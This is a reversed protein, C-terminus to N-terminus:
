PQFRSRPRLGSRAPRAASRRALMAAERDPNAGHGLGARHEDARGATGICRSPAPLARGAAFPVRESRKGLRAHAAGAPLRPRRPPRGLRDRLEDGLGFRAPSRSRPIRGRGPRRGRARARHRQDAALGADALRRQQQLAGRRKGPCCPTRYAVPSSDTRWTASRARRSATSAPLRLSTASVATSRMRSRAASAPACTSTMSEIWVIDTAATSAAGPATVCNRSDVALRTRWAFVVPM